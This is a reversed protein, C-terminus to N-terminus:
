DSTKRKLLDVVMKHFEEPLWVDDGHEIMESGIDGYNKDDYMSIVIGNGFDVFLGNIGEFREEPPVEKIEDSNTIANTLKRITEEDTIVLPDDMERGYYGDSYITVMTVSDWQEDTDTERISVAKSSSAAASENNEDAGSCGSLLLGAAVIAVIKWKNHMHTSQIRM